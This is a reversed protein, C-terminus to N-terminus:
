YGSLHVLNTRGMGWEFHPCRSNCEIKNGDAITVVCPQTYEVVCGLKTAIHLNLFNHTNGSDLLITIERGAAKGLLKITDPLTQGIIVNLPIHPEKQDSSMEDLELTEGVEVEEEEDGEVLILYVKKCKHGLHFIEDCNSCLIKERMTKMEEPTLRKIPPLKPKNLGKSKVHTTSSTLPAKTPMRQGKTLLNVIEDSQLALQTTSLLTARKQMAVFKGVKEKLGRIFSKLFYGDNLAKNNEKM